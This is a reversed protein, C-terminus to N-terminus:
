AIDPESSTLALKLRNIQDSMPRPMAQKNKGSAPSIKLQIFVPGSGSLAEAAGREWKEESAFSYVRNIGAGRAINAYDVNGSGATKQGGTLGYVGNDMIVIYLNAPHGAVTVLCGLNMLMCGDGNVVVVGRGPCALAIGLGFPPGQGMTSPLYVFDLPTDSIGPWLGAASMTSIVVHSGRNRALIELAYLQEIM